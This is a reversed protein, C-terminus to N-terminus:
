VITWRAGATSSCFATMIRLGMIFVNSVKWRQHCSVSYLLATIPGPNGPSQHVAL